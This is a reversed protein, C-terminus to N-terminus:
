YSYGRNQENWKTRESTKEKNKVDLEIKQENQNSQKRNSKPTRQTGKIAGDFRRADMAGQHISEQETKTLKTNGANVKHIITSDRNQEYHIYQKISNWSYKKGLKSGKFIINDMMFSIGSVRNTTKSINFQPHIKEKLLGKIFQSVTESSLMLTYIKQQMKIRTPVEGTRLTMEIETKTLRTKEKKKYNKLQQLGFEIELARVIEESRRYDNSESVLEGSYKVRNSVIHIHPHESDFHRYIIYQNDDFGMQKLYKKAIKKFVINDLQEQKPLNLSVHYVPRGLKPRLQKIIDFEKALEKITRGALNTYLIVAENKMVKQENYAIVGRFNKGKVQKAIM